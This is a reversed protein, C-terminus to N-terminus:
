DVKKFKAEFDQVGGGSLLSLSRGEPVGQLHKTAGMGYLRCALVLGSV